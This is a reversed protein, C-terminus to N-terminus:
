ELKINKQRTESYHKRGLCIKSSVLVKTLSFSNLTKVSKLYSSSIFIFMCFVTVIKFNSVIQCLKVQIKVVLDILASKLAIDLVLDVLELLM